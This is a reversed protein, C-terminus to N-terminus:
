PSFRGRQTALQRQLHRVQAVSRGRQAASYFARLAAVCADAEGKVEKELSKAEEDTITGKEKLIEILKDTQDARAMTPSFVVIVVVVLVSALIGKVKM